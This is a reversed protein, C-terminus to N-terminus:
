GGFRFSNLIVPLQGKVGLDAPSHLEGDIDSGLMALLVGNQQGAPGPVLVIRGFLNITQGNAQPTASFTMQYGAMGNVTTAENSTVVKFGPLSAFQQQLQGFIQPLLPADTAPDGTGTFTGVSFNEITVNLPTNRSFKVFNAATATGTEPDPTWDGPYDFSFGVYHQSLDPSKANDQSNVYHKSPAPATPAGSGGGSTNGVTVSCGALAAAAALALAGATVARAIRFLSM